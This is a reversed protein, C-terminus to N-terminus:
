PLVELYLYLYQSDSFTIRIVKHVNNLTILYYTDTKSGRIKEGWEVNYDHGNELVLELFKDMTIETLGIPGNTEPMTKNEKRKGFVIEFSSISLLLIIGLFFSIDGVIMACIILILAILKAIDLKTIYKSM